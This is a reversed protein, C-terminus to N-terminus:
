EFSLIIQSRAVRPFLLVILRSGQIPNLRNMLINPKMIIDDNAWCPNEDGDSVVDVIIWIGPYCPGLIMQANFSYKNPVM